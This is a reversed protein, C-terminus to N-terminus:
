AFSSRGGMEEIMESWLLCRRQLAWRVARRLVRWAGRGVVVVM